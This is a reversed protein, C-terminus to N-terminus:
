HSLRGVSVEDSCQADAGAAAAPGPATPTTPTTMYRRVYDAVSVNVTHQGGFEADTAIHSSRRAQM